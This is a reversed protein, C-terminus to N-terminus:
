DPMSNIKALMSGTNVNAGTSQKTNNNRENSKQVISDFKSYLNSLLFNCKLWEDTIAKAFFHNLVKLAYEETWEFKQASSASLKRLREVILKLTKAAAGNFTPEILYNKKYFDFWVEVIKKWYLTKEFDDKKKGPSKDGAFSNNLKTETQSKTKNYDEPNVGVNTYPNTGQNTGVNTYANTDVNTDFKSTSTSVSLKKVFSYQGFQRKSKGSKYHLLGAQILACRAKDLTNESIRLAACLEDNSCSFIDSWQEENCIAILEYYLAQETANLPYRRRTKRMKETLSYGDLKLALKSM